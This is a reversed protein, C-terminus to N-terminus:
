LLIRLVKGHIVAPVLDRLVKLFDQRLANKHWSFTINSRCIGKM